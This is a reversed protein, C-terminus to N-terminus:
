QKLKASLQIQAKPLRALAAKFTKVKFAAQEKAAKAETTKNMGLTQFTVAAHSALEEQLATFSAEFDKRGLTIALVTEDHLQGNFSVEQLDGVKRFLSTTFEIWYTLAEALLLDKPYEDKGM